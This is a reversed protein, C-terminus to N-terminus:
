DFLATIVTPKVTELQMSTDIRFNSQTTHREAFYFDLTCSQDDALSLDIYRDGSKIPCSGLGAASWKTALQTAYTSSVSQVVGTAPLPKSANYSFVKGDFLIVNGTIAGHVGGLDLVKTGNVFVWVDDDGVFKFNQGPKYTFKTHLEFTFHYNHSLGQNGFGLNDLPFFNSNSYSYVGGSTSAGNSLTITLPFTQNVTADDTFWQKFANANSMHDNSSPRTPNFVPKGDAGLSYGVMDIVQGYSTGPLYDPVGAQASGTTVTEFDPHGGAMDGRKFDRLTGSLTLTDAMAPAALAGCIAAIGLLRKRFM